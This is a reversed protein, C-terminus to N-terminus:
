KKKKKRQKPVSLNIQKNLIYYVSQFQQLKFFPASFIKEVTGQM